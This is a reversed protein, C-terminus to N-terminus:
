ILPFISYIYKITISIIDSYKSLSSEDSVASSYHVSTIHYLYNNCVMVTVSIQGPKTKRVSLQKTRLAM